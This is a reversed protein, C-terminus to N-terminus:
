ELGAQRAGLTAAARDAVQLKNFINTGHLNKGKNRQTKQPYRVDQIQIGIV